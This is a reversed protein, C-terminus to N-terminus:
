GSKPVQQSLCHFSGLGVSLNRSPLGMVHRGPFLSELTQIAIEDQPVSFQPVIVLDNTILFNCYSAPVRRSHLEIPEPIPLPVLNWDTTGPVSDLGQRLADLNAALGDSQPDSPDECWSYVVTTPDAFRALQDIHGDTDDGAISDGPLWIISNPEWTVSLRLKM